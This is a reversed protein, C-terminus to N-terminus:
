YFSFHPHPVAPQRPACGRPAPWPELMPSPAHPCTLRSPSAAPTGGSSAPSAAPWAEGRTGGGGTPPGWSRGEGLRSVQPSLEVQQGRGACFDGGWLGSRAVWGVAPGPLSLMKPRPHRSSWLWTHISYSRGWGWLNDELAARPSALPHQAPPWPSLALDGRTLQSAAPPQAEGGRRCPFRHGPGETPRPKAAGPHPGGHPAPGLSVGHLHDCLLLGAPTSHRTAHPSPLVM